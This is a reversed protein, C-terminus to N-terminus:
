RKILENDAMWILRSFLQQLNLHVPFSAETPLIDGLYPFCKEQEAKSFNFDIVRNFNLDLEWSKYSEVGLGLYESTRLCKM